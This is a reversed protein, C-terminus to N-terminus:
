MYTIRYLLMVAYPFILWLQDNGSNYIMMLNLKVM